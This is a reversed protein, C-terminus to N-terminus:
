HVGIAAIDEVAMLLDPAIAQAINSLFAQLFDPLCFVMASEARPHLGELERGTSFAPTAAKRFGVFLIAESIRERHAPIAEPGSADQLARLMFFIQVHSAKGNLSDEGDEGIDMGVQRRQLRYHIM